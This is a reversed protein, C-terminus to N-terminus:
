RKFIELLTNRTAPKDAIVNAHRYATRLMALPKDAFSMLTKNEDMKNEDLTIITEERPRKAQVYYKGIFVDYWVSLTGYHGELTFMYRAKSTKNGILADHNDFFENEVAYAAYETGKIFQGFKTTYVETEFAGSPIIHCVLFGNAKRIIGDANANAPDIGYEIFYPNTIAVSNALFFVRTKDKYRDVTSFFNNFITAENPLYHTASKEIIFEDFIITKVKAFSVSKVSQAVSLALFFGITEWQRKKTERESIPSYQAHMGNIRFDHNPFEDQIDAFFTDRSLRLEEKYRRLYIFQDGKEIGDKIVKKKSGYTKGKGRGGVAFNYCANFSLLKAFSYYSSANIM